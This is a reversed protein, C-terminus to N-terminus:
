QLFTIASSSSFGFEVHILGSLPFCFHVAMEISCQNTNTFMVAERTQILQQIMLTAKRSNWSGGEIGCIDYFCIGTDVLFHICFTGMVSMCFSKHHKWCISSRKHVWISIGDGLSHEQWFTSWLLHWIRRAVSLGQLNVLFYDCVSILLM